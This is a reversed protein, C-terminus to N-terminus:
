VCISWLVWVDVSGATAVSLNAGTAVAALRISTAAGHNEHGMVAASGFMFGYLVDRMTRTDDALEECKARLNQIETQNYAAAIPLGGIENDTNALVGPLPSQVTHYSLSTNAPAGFVSFAPLYKDLYLAIGVSLTYTAIAGGTFAASHKLKIAHIIGGAPLSFLEIDNSATPAALDTFTKTYKRWYPARDAATLRNALVQISSNDVLGELPVLNHILDYIDQRLCNLEPLDQASQFTQAM